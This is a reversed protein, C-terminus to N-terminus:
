VGLAAFIKQFSDPDPLFIFHGKLDPADEEKIFATDIIIAHDSMQSLEVLGYSLSAGVMDITLAPVSPYFNLQTFDALASLYSGAVINGIEQLASRALDPYPEKSFTVMQLGTINEIFETAQTLPLVFYMNGPADGEIKFYVSAVVTEAGGMMEMMKNFSVIEVHPVKMMMKRNLIKSLATTASGAGINGIEKLIDLYYSDIKEFFPM